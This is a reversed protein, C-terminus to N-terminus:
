CSDMSSLPTWLPDVREQNIQKGRFNLSVMDLNINIKWELFKVWIKWIKGFNENLIELIKMRFKWFKWEFNGFNENSIELIKMRFKWFKWEFNGFDLVNLFNILKCFNWEFKGFNESLNELIKVWIKLIKVSIKWFNWEFNGFIDNMIELIKM